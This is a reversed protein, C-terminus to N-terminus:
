SPCGGGPFLSLPSAHHVVNFLFGTGRKPGLLHGLEMPVWGILSDNPHPARDQRKEKLLDVEYSPFFTPSQPRVTAVVSCPTSIRSSVSSCHSLEEILRRAFMEAHRTLFKDATPVSALERTVVPPFDRM